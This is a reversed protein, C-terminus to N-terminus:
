FREKPIRCINFLRELDLFVRNDVPKSLELWDLEEKTKVEPKSVKVKNINFYAAISIYPAVKIELM